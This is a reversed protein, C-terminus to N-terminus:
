RKIYKTHTGSAVLEQKGQEGIRNIEVTTFALSAGVKNARAEISLFDGVKATSIYTVHIDTSLGTQDRGTTAIALGGTCDIICASVTGHLTGKSNMHASKIELSAQLYGDTARILQLDSLLFTYIPSQPLMNSWYQKVHSLVSPSLSRSDEMIFLPDLQSPTSDAM